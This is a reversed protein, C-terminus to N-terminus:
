KNMLYSRGLTVHHSTMELSQLFHPLRMMDFRSQTAQQSRLTAIKKAGRLSMYVDNRAVSPLTAIEYFFHIRRM